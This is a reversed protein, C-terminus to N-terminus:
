IDMYKLINDLQEIKGRIKGQGAIDSMDMNILEKISLELEIRFLKIINQVIENGIFNNYKEEIKINGEYDEIAKQYITKESEKLHKIISGIPRPRGKKVNDKENQEM